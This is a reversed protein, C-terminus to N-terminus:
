EGRRLRSRMEKMVQEGPILAVEGSDVERVRREIEADWASEVEDEDEVDLSAILREALRARASRQLQLAASEIEEPHMTIASARQFGENELIVPVQEVGDGACALM